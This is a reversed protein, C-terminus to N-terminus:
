KRFRILREAYTAYFNKKGIFISQGEQTSGKWVFTQTLTPPSQFLILTKIASHSM